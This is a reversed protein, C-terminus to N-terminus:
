DLKSKKNNFSNIIKEIADIQKEICRVKKEKYMWGYYSKLTTGNKLFFKFELVVGRNYIFKSNTMYTHPSFFETFFGRVNTSKEKNIIEYSIYRIDKFSIIRLLLDDLIYIKRKEYNIHIGNNYIFISNLVLIIFSLTFIILLIINKYLVISLVCCIISLIINIFTIKFNYDYRFFDNKM